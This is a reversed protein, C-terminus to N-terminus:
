GIKANRMDGTEEFATHFAFASKFNHPTHGKPCSKLYARLLPRYDPHACHNIIAEARERPSKARLDVIGQETAVVQVSHESHDAHSVLPVIRSIKGDKGTSPCTFISIFANRTFDGSGGLGNMMSRGLVHTSNVNGFVDFEMSTNVSILGLRRVIEPSNSIEQPRLILHSKFYPIDKYIRALVNPSVTLSSGSAFKIKNELILQIVADQIVETYMEFAPISPHQGLAFLVGNAIEGVGSQIPLFGSPIAGSKLKGALFEAVHGGIQRTVAGPEDFASMEDELDTEVVGAVRAPDLKIVPSGIRDSVRSLHMDEAFPPDVMEFIDHIGRLQSPHRRNLEILIRDASSCFTPSTGVGSTLVIEDGSPSVDCAEIVAWNIKGFWGRRVAKPVQSLHMDFFRTRGSNISDRIDRNSQYPTRFSIADERALAGDLSDGTSAGTVVGIKFPRNKQHEAKARAALALPIAKPVGAPTFGSFSVTNGDQILAAAEDATLRTYHATM